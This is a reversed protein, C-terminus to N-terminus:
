NEPFVPMHWLGQLICPNGDQGVIDSIWAKACTSIRFEIKCKQLEGEVKAFM